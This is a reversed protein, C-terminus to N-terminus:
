FGGRRSASSRLVSLASSCYRRSENTRFTSPTLSATACQGSTSLPVVSTQNTLCRVRASISQTAYRNEPSSMATGSSVTPGSSVIPEATSAARHPFLDIRDDARCRTEFLQVPTVPIPRRDIQPPDEHMEEFLRSAVGTM